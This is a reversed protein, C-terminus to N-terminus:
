VRDADCEARDTVTIRGGGAPYFGHRELTASVRPGMRNVLPLFAKQLFNSRRRGNITRAVKLRSNRRATPLYCHLCYPKCCSRRVARRASM